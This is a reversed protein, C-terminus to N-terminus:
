QIKDHALLHKRQHPERAQYTEVIVENVAPFSVPSESHWATEILNRTVRDGTM